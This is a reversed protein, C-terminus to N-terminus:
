RAWGAKRGLEDERKREGFEINYETSVRTTGTREPELWACAASPTARHSMQKNM